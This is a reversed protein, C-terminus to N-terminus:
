EYYTGGLITDCSYIIKGESNSLTYDGTKTKSILYIKGKIFTKM